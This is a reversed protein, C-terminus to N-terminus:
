GQEDLEAFLARLPLIFGPLVAGGDLADAETLPTFRTPSTYVDVSRTRPDVMWALTVGADFYEQRKRVMEDRSNSPSLVEVVLDPVVAPYADDPVRRDPLRDWSLFAADPMRVLALLIEMGGQEGTVIGLKRPRVFSRLPEILAGALMSERMGAPKEVLTGDVLECGEEGLLDAVTATGPTPHLRIRDLPVNGLRRVLEGVTRVGPLMSVAPM